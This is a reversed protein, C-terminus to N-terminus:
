GAPSGPPQTTQQQTPRVVHGGEAVLQDVPVVHGLAKLCGGASRVADHKCGSACAAALMFLWLLQLGSVGSWNIGHM